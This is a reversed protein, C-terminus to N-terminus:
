GPSRRGASRALSREPNKWYLPDLLIKFHGRRFPNLEDLEIFQGPPPDAVTTGDLDGNRAFDRRGLYPKGPQIRGREMTVAMLEHDLLRQARLPEPLVGVGFPTFRPHSLTVHGPHNLPSTKVSYKVQTMHVLQIRPIRLGNWREGLLRTAKILAGEIAENMGTVWWNVLHNREGSEANHKALGQALEKPLDKTSDM